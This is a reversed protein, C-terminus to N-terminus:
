SHPNQFSISGPGLAPGALEQQLGQVLEGMSQRHFPSLSINHLLTVFCCPIVWHLLQPTQTRPTYCLPLLFPRVLSVLLAPIWLFSPVQRLALKGPSCCLSSKEPGPVMEALVIDSELQRWPGVSPVPGDPKHRCVYLRNRFSDKVAALMGQPLGGLSFHLSSEGPAWISGPWAGGEDGM